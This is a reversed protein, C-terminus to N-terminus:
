SRGLVRGTGGLVDVPDGGWVSWFAPFRRRWPGFRASDPFESIKRGQKQIKEVLKQYKGELKQFKEVTESIKPGRMESIKEGTESIKERTESIGPKQSKQFNRIQAKGGLPRTTPPQRPGPASASSAVLWGRM